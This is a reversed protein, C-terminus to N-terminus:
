APGPGNRLRVVTGPRAQALLDLDDPHVVGVVPYGGLTPHDALFVLPQGAPPVQVAGLVVPESRLETTIRRTLGPGELRVGVRDSQGSVRYRVRLLTALADETFWDARPGPHLRLWLEDPILATPAVDVPAPVGPDDGLPVRTGVALPDPGLGSLLDTSRSGLVPPPTLGGGVALYSRVGRQAPGIEIRAGVPVAVPAAWPVPRDDVTVAAWAGTVAVTAPRSLRVAIGTLTTEVTAATAPNGVLRNALLHAARDLAGSRPVGLHAWGRRGLDQVTSLAGPHLVRLHGGSM